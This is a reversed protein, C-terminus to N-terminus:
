EAAWVPQGDSETVFGRQVTGRFPLDFELTGEVADMKKVAVTAECKWAKFKGTTKADEDFKYVMLAESTADGGTKLNYAYDWIADFDPEGKYMTLPLGDVKPNYSELDTTASEDAIYETTVLTPNFDLALSKSKAIRVYKDKIKLFLAIQYKKVKGTYAM